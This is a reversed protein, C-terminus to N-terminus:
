FAEGMNLYIGSSTPSKAVDLHVNLDRDKKLNFRVSLGGAAKPRELSIATPSSFVNGVGGFPALSFRGVVRVRWEAQAMMYLHDRYRGQYYGRLRSSGGLGPLEPLPVQGPAWGAYGEVALVTRTGLSFQSRQDFEHFSYSYAGGLARPFFTSSFTTLSGHHAGLADDRTDRRFIPGVGVAGGTAPSTRVYEDVGGGPMQGYVEYWGTSLAAGLYLQEVLRGAFTVRSVAGSQTFPENASEPTDNGVGWFANPYRVAAADETLQYRAEDWFKTISLTVQYQKRLTAQVGLIATDDRRQEGPPRPTDDFVAASGSFGLSTEPAYFVVPFVAWDWRTPPKSMSTEAVPPASPPAVVPPAASPATPAPSVDAIATRALAAVLFLAAWAGAWSRM